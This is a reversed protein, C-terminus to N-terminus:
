GNFLGEERNSLIIKLDITKIKYTEESTFSPSETENSSYKDGNISHLIPDDGNNDDGDDDGDDDDDGGGDDGDDGGGDDGCGDDDDGDDDGDDDNFVFSHM